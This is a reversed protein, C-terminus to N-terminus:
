PQVLMLSVFRTRSLHYLVVRRLRGEVPRLCRLEPGPQGAEVAQIAWALGLSAASCFEGCAQKYVARGLPGESARELERAVRLYREDLAADGSAGLLLLDGKGLQVGAGALAQRAGAPCDKFRGGLTGELLLEVRARRPADSPARLRLAAAGEGPLCLEGPAEELPQLPRARARWWGFRQGAAAVYSVLADAGCCLVEDARGAALLYAAHGLALEFSQANHTFTHNEGQMGLFIAIQSALSNHVSNIFRAPRPHKEREQVMNELFEVVEWTAGMGTGVCVAAQSSAGASRGEAAALAAALGMRQLRGLRRIRRAPISTRGIDGRCLFAAQTQGPLGAPLTLESLDPEPPSLGLGVIDVAPM